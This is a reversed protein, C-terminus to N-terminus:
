YIKIIDFWEQVEPYFAVQDYNIIRKIHWQTKNTSTKNLNMVYINMLFTSRDNEKKGTMNPNQYWHKRTKHFHNPLKLEKEQGM